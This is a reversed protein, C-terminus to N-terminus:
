TLSPEYTVHGKNPESVWEGRGMTTKQDASGGAGTSAVHNKVLFPSTIKGAYNDFYFYYSVSEWEFISRFLYGGGGGGEM